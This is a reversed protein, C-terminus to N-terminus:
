VWTDMNIYNVIYTNHYNYKLYLLYEANQKQKKNKRKM